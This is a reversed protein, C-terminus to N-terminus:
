VREVITAVATGGGGCITQLGYRLNNRAMWHVMETFYLVGSCGIPHGIAIAGGTPNIRPDDFALGFERCFALVPSAFAENPEFVDIDDMTLGTRSLAKHMAEIPALLMIVPDDGAVATARIRVMPEIGLEEAKEATMLMTAAAGDAIGSSSGATIRGGEKFRTPLTGMKAYFGEPDDVAEARPREDSEITRAQGDEGITMPVVRKSYWEGDRISEVSKQQSWLGFRDMEERTLDYREAIMEASVGQFQLAGRRLVEPDTQVLYGAGSAAEFQSGIPYKSMNEVGAAITIDGSGCALAQAQSNIGQLGAPCYRELTWGAVSDPLGAAFVALRGINGGQDGIQMACAVAVDEVRGPDFAPSMAQVREVLARIAAGVMTQSSTQYYAGKKEDGKWGSRGVPLRVADVVVVEKM